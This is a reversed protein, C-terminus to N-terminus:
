VCLNRFIDVIEITNGDLEFRFNDLNRIGFIVVKTKLFNVELKWLKKLINLNRQIRQLFLQILLMCYLLANLFRVTLVWVAM